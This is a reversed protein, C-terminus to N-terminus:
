RGEGSRRAAVLSDAMRISRRMGLTDGLSGLCVALNRPYQPDGPFVRMLKEIEGAAGRWEGANGLLMALFHHDSEWAANARREREVDEPGKIMEVWSFTSNEHRFFYDRDRPEGAGRPEYRRYLHGTITADRYWVRFVPDFWSEGIGTANPVNVFFLRSHEPLSPHRLLLDRKLRGVFFAARPHYYDSAWELSPTAAHVPQLVAAIAVVGVALRPWRALVSAVAAWAGLATLLAYYSLWGVSPMFLPLAALAAWGLAFTVPAVAPAGARAGARAAQTAEAESASRAAGRLAWAVGAALLVIGPLAPILAGPWGIEPEPRRDLNVMSLATRLVISVPSTEGERGTGAAQGALRVRLFPHLVAWVAVMALQPAVRRLGAMPRDRDLALAYLLAIAPVVAATEKSLLAGALALCAALTSRRAFAHLSLLAFLLMWLEQSGAAWDLASAWGALTAAGAAAIVGAAPGMIRRVFTFYASLVAVWLAFTATHFPLETVGFLRWLTWFHLERSWPRYWKWLPHEATWLSAFSARSVKDLITYDDALFPMGLIFHYELVGYAAILLVIWAAGPVAIWAPLAPKTTAGRAEPSPM